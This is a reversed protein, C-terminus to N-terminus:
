QSLKIDECSYDGKWSWLPNKTENAVGTNDVCFFSSDDLAAVVTWGKNRTKSSPLSILGTPVGYFKQTTTDICFVDKVKKSASQLLKKVGSTICVNDYNDNNTYHIEAESRVSSLESKAASMEAKNRASNLSALVVASLIGIVAVVVLLEILTFGKKIYM